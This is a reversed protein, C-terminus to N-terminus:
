HRWRLRIDVSRLIAPTRWRLFAATGVVLNLGLAIILYINFYHFHPPPLESPRVELRMHRGTM